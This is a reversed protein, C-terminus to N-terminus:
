SGKQRCPGFISNSLNQDEPSSNYYVLFEQMSGDFLMEYSSILTFKAESRDLQEDVTGHRPAMIHIYDAHLGQNIRQHCHRYSVLQEYIYSDRFTYPLMGAAYTIIRPLRNKGDKVNDWHAEIDLAEQKLVQMFQIYDRVGLSRYEGISSLGNVSHNYTYMVQYLQFLTLFLLFGTFLIGYRGALLDFQNTRAARHILDVVLFVTAPLYPVFFRFSFMMHHTAITLGYLLQLFLGLYLWWKSKIHLYLFPLTSPRFRLFAITLVLVPIIGVFLLNSAIYLGNYFLQVLNGTPTKVYFSTPLLDGYYLISVCFWAVPLISAVLLAILVHKISQAKSGTYIIV